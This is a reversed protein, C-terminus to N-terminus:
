SRAPELCALDCTACEDDSARCRRQYEAYRALLLTRLEPDERLLRVLDLLRATTRTSVDHELLCAEALAADSELGLVDGLFAHLVAFRHHVERAVREGSATLVLFRREDHTVLGREELARIGVSLTPPAVGLERAVDTLRAYGRQARVEWIARLYHEHSASHERSASYKGSLM